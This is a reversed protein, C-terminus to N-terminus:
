AFSPCKHNRKVLEQMCYGVRFIEGRIVRAAFVIPKPKVANFGKGIVASVIFAPVGPDERVDAERIIGFFRNRCHHKHMAAAPM